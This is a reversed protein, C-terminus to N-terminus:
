KFYLMMELMSCEMYSSELKNEQLTINSESQKGKDYKCLMRKM